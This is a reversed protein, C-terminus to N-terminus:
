LNVQVALIFVKTNESDISKNKGRWQCFPRETISMAFSLSLWSIM